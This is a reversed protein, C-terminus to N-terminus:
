LVAREATGDSKHTVIAFPRLENGIELASPEFVPVVVTSVFSPRLFKRENSFAEKRQLTVDRISRAWWMATQVRELVAVARPRNPFHERTSRISDMNRGDNKAPPINTIM